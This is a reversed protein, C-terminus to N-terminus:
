ISCGSIFTLKSKYSDSIMETVLEGEPNRRPFSAVTEADDVAMKNEFEAIELAAAQLNAKKQERTRKREVRRGKEEEIEEPQRRVGLTENVIRGPHTTANKSRTKVRNPDPVITLKGKTNRPAM